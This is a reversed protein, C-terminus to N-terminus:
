AGPHNQKKDTVSQLAKLPGPLPSRIWGGGGWGCEQHRTCELMHKLGNCMYAGHTQRAMNCGLCHRQCQPFPKFAVQTARVRRALIVWIHM